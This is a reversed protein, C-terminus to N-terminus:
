QVKGSHRVQGECPLHRSRWQSWGGALVKVNVYGRDMLYTALERALGCSAADCYTIIMTNPPIGTLVRDFCDDISDMPLNRAHAIHGLNYTEKSRADLFIAKKSFFLRQADEISITIGEAEVRPDAFPKLGGPTLHNALLGTVTALFAIIGIEWVLRSWISDKAM